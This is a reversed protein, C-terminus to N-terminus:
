VYSSFVSCRPHLLGRQPSHKSERLPGSLSWESTGLPAAHLCLGPLLLVELVVDDRPAM